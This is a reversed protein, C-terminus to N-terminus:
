QRSQGAKFKGAPLLAVFLAVAVPPSFWLEALTWLGGRSLRRETAALEPIQDLFTQPANEVCRGVRGPMRVKGAEHFARAAHNLGTNGIETRVGLM